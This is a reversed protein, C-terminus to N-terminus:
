SAAATIMGSVKLTIKASMKEDETINGPAYETVFGNMTWTERDPFTIVVPLLTTVSVPVTAGPNMNIDLELSGPDVLKGPTFTRAGVTGLHSTDIAKRSVKPPNIGTVEYAYGGGSISVTTGLGVNVSM